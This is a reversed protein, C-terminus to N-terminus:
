LTKSCVEADTVLVADLPENPLHWASPHSCWGYLYAPLPRCRVLSRFVSRHDLLVMDPAVRDM